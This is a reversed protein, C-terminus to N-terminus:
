LPNRRAINTSAPHNPPPPPITLINQDQRRYFDLQAPCEALVLLAFVSPCPDEQKEPRPEMACFLNKYFVPDSYEALVIAKGM